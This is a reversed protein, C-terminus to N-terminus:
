VSVMDDSAGPGYVREAWADEVRADAAATEAERAERKRDDAAGAAQDRQLAIAAGGVPRRNCPRGTYDIKIITDDKLDAPTAFRVGIRGSDETKHGQAIKNVTRYSCGFDPKKSEKAAKISGFHYKKEKDAVFWVVVPKPKNYAENKPANQPDALYKRM